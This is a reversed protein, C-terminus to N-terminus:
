AKEFFEEPNALAFLLCANVFGEGECDDFEEDMANLAEAAVEGEETAFWKERQEFSKWTDEPPFATKAKNLVKELAALGMLKAGEIALHLLSPDNLAVGTALGDGKVVENITSIGFFARRHPTVEASSRSELEGEITGRIEAEIDFVEYSEPAPWEPVVGGKCLRRLEELKAAPLKM